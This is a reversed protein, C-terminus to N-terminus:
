STRRAGPPHRGRLRGLVRRLGDGRRGQDLRRGALPLRRAQAPRHGPRLERARAAGAGAQRRGRRVRQEHEPLRRAGPGARLRDPAHLVGQRRPLPGPPQQHRHPQRGAAQGAGRAREHGDPRDALREHEQRRRRGRRAAPSQKGAAVPPGAPRPPPAAPKARGAQPRRARRRTAEAAPRPAAAPAPPRAQAAPPAASRPGAAAARSRRRRPRAARRRQGVRRPEDRDGGGVPSGPRYDAFFEHWAQDVSSPDALYQQYMEEVLWENTGFGAVSSSSASSPRSSSVSSVPDLAKKTQPRAHM